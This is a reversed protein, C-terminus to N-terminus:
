ADIRTPRVSRKGGSKPKALAHRIIPFRAKPPLIAVDSIGINGTARLELMSEGNTYDNYKLGGGAFTYIKTPDSADIVRDEQATAAAAILLGTLLITSCPIFETSRM